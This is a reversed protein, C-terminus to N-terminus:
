EHTVISERYPTNKFWRRIRRRNEIGARALIYNRRARARQFLICCELLAPFSSRERILVAGIVILNRFILGRLIANPIDSPVYNNLQLLFRNRVGHLNLAPSVATRNDSFVVRRHRGIARHVYRCRWGYLQGRWALDADERYAFFGEDFFDVRRDKGSELEPFVKFLDSDGALKPLLLSQIFERSFLVCAGSAGFVYADTSYQGTDIEGSGVDFHRLDPTITMGASDFREAGSGNIETQLLRPCVSGTEPDAKLTEMMIQLADAELSCDPNLLLLAACKSKLFEAIILNQGGSFGLNVSNKRFQVAAFESRLRFPEIGEDSSGNDSVVVTLNSTASYDQQNLLSQIATAVLSEGHTRISNYLLIHAFVSTEM